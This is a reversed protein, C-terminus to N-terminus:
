RKKFKEMFVLKLFFAKDADKRYTYIAKNLVLGLLSVIRVHVVFHQGVVVVVFVQQHYERQM